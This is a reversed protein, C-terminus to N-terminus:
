YATQFIVIFFQANHSSNLFLYQSRFRLMKLAHLFEVWVTWYRIWFGFMLKVVTAGYHVFSYETLRLIVTFAFLTGSRLSMASQRLHCSVTGCFKTAGTFQLSTDLWRTQGRSFVKFESASTKCQREGTNVTDEFCRNEDHFATYLM